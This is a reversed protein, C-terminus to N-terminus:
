PRRGARAAPAVRARTGALTPVTGGHHAGRARAARGREGPALARRLRVGGGAAPVASRARGGGRPGHPAHWATRGLPPVDRRAPERVRESRGLAAGRRCGGGGARVGRAA